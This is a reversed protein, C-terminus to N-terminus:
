MSTQYKYLYDQQRDEKNQSNSYKGKNPPYDPEGDMYLDYSNTNFQNMPKKASQHVSRNHFNKSSYRNNPMNQSSNQYYSHSSAFSDPYMQPPTSCFRDIKLRLDVPNNLFSRSSCREFADLAERATPFNVLASNGRIDLSINSVRSPAVFDFITSQSANPGINYIEMLNITPPFHKEPPMQQQVLYGNFDDNKSFKRPLSSQAASLYDTSTAPLVDVYRDSIYNRTKKLADDLDGKTMLSVYATGNNLFDPRDSPILEIGEINIGVVM